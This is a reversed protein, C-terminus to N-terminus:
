AKIVTSFSDVSKMSYLETIFVFKKVTFHMQLLFLKKSPEREKEVEYLQFTKLNM